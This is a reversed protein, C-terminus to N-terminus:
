FEKGIAASVIDINSIKPLHIALKQLEFLLPEEALGLDLLDGLFM